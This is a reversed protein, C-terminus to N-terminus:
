RICNNILTAKAWKEKRKKFTEKIILSCLKLFFAIRKKVAGSIELILLSVCKGFIIVIEINDITIIIFLWM